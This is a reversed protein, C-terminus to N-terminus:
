FFRQFSIFDPCGYQYKGAYIQGVFGCFFLAGGGCHALLPGRRIVTKHVLYTKVKFVQPLYIPM